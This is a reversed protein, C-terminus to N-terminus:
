RCLIQLVSLAAHLVPITPGGALTQKVLIDLFVLTLVFTDASDLKGGIEKIIEGSFTFNFSM